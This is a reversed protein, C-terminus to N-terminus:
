LKGLMGDVFKEMDSIYEKEFEETAKKFIYKGKSFGIEQTGRVQRYGYEILHAHLAPSYVRITKTGDGRYVYFRGKKISNIYNGTKSKVKSEALGKVKKVLKNAEKNMFTKTEKPFTKGVMDSLSQEFKLLEKIDFEM